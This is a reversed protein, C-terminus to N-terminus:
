HEVLDRYAHWTAHAALPFGIILGLYLTLFSFLVISVLVAAWLLMPVPNHRVAAWSTQIAEFVTVPRDVLMPVSVASISFVGLAIVAGAYSGVVLLQAGEWTGFLMTVFGQWSAPTMGQHFFVFILNGVMAWALFCLVLIVGMSLIPFPNRGFAQLSHNISATEGQELQRSVSYPGIGFLPAVLLFGALLLPLLFYAGSFVISVSVLASLLALSLGYFLSPIPAQLIDQWGASLWQWVNETGIERVKAITM